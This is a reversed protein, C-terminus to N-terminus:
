RLVIEVRRNQVERAGDVTQILPRTEGFATVVISERAVGGRVLEAAVTEGRTRSLTENYRTAGSRDAHGAVEIRTSQVVRAKQAAEGVIQRARATLESKDWDFFVLYTTAPAVGVAVLESPGVPPVHLAPAAGFAYRVGVLGAHTMAGDAREGRLLLDGPVGTARYEGTLSLGPVADIRYSAGVMGQMSFGGDNGAALRGGSREFWQYGVGMGVFPTLPALYGSGLRGLAGRTDVDYYANAFAGMQRLDGGARRSSEAEAWSGQAELRVGNGFAWGLAASGSLGVDTQDQTVGTGIGLAAYPGYVNIRGATEAQAAVGCCLALVTALALSKPHM